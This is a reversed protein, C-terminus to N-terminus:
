DIRVYINNIYIYRRTKTFLQYISENNIGKDKGNNAFITKQKNFIYKSNINWM